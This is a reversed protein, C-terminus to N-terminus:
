LIFLYDLKNEPAILYGLRFPKKGLDTSLLSYMIKSKDQFLYLM